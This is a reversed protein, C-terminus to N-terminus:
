QLDVHYTPLHKFRSLGKWTKVELGGLRLHVMVRKFGLFTKFGIRANRRKWDTINTLQINGSEAGPPEAEMLM